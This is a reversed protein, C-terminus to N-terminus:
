REYLLICRTILFGAAFNFFRDVLTRPHTLRFSYIVTATISVTCIAGAFTALNEEEEEKKKKKCLSSPFGLGRMAIFRPDIRKVRGIHACANGSLERAYM